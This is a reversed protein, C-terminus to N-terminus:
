MGNLAIGRSVIWDSIEGCLTQPLALSDARDSIWFRTVRVLHDLVAATSGENIAEQDPSIESIVQLIATFSLMSLPPKDSKFKLYKLLQWCKQGETKKYYIALTCVLVLFQEETIVNLSEILTKQELLSTESPTVDGELSADSATSDSEMIESLSNFDALSEAADRELDTALTMALDQPRLVCTFLALYKKIKSNQQSQELIGLLVKTKEVIKETAEDQDCLGELFAVNLQYIIELVRWSLVLGYFDDTNDQYLEVYKLNSVSPALGENIPQNFALNALREILEPSVMMALGEAKKILLHLQSISKNEGSYELNKILIAKRRLSVNLLTGVLPYRSCFISGLILSLFTTEFTTEGSSLFYYNSLLSWGTFSDSKGLLKSSIEDIRDKQIRTPLKAGLFVLIQNLGSSSASASKKSKPKPAAFYPQVITAISVVVLLVKMLRWIHIAHESAFAQPFIPMASLNKFELDGSFLSTGVMAAMGGLLYKNTPQQQYAGHPPPGVPQNYNVGPTTNFSPAAPAFGFGHQPESSAERQPAMMQPQNLNAEQILRQFKRNDQLLAENKKELHKIYETAKDLVSAKNLKSAPSLGELDAVSVDNAGAAIRLSPVADRLALIKTNINTRYKREIQNHSIKDKRGPKTVKSAATVVPKKEEEKVPQKLDYLIADQEQKVSQPSTKNSYGTNQSEPTLGGLMNSDQSYSSSSMSSSQFGSSPVAAAKQKNLGPLGEMNMFWDNMAKEDGNLSDPSLSQAAGLISQLFNDTTEFDYFGPYDFDTM